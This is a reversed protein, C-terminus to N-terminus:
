LYVLFVHENEPESVLADDLASLTSRRDGQHGSAISPAHSKRYIRLLAHNSTSEFRLLSAEIGDVLEM